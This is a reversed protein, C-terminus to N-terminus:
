QRAQQQQSYYQQKRAVKRWFRHGQETDDFSFCMYMAEYSSDAIYALRRATNNITNKIAPGAESSELSELWEAITAKM